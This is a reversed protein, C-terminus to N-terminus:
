HCRFLIRTVGIGGRGGGVCMCMCVCERRTNGEGVCVSYSSIEFEGKRLGPFYQLWLQSYFEYNDMTTINLDEYISYKYMCGSPNADRDIKICLELQDESLDMQSPIKSFFLLCCQFALWHPRTPRMLSRCLIFARVLCKNIM